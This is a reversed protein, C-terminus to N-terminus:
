DNEMNQYLERELLKPIKNATVKLFQVIFPYDLEPKSSLLDGWWEAEYRCLMSLNYLLLYHVMVESVPLFHNRHIPFYIEGENIHIFFPGKSSLLKRELEVYISSQQYDINQIQPLFPEIRKVFAKETLHHTDMLWVPFQLLRSNVTGVMTMKEDGQFSFFSQMEPIVSFLDEMKIKEFPIPDITFLYKSFYPFLGKQQVKVEDNMFTYNRKKRKRTTVGHSLLTTSEPYDPRKTLLCAKLVHTLGYFYLVPKAFIDVEHGIEYFRRGHDLYYMFASCNNYSKTEADTEELQKYCHLLYNQATQQSTLYMYFDSNELM